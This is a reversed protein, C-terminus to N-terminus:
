RNKYKMNEYVDTQRERKVLEVNFVLGGLGFGKANIADILTEYAEQTEYVAVEWKKGFYPESSLMLNAELGDKEIREINELSGLYGLENLINKNRYFIHKFQEIESECAIAVRQNMKNKLRTIINQVTLM